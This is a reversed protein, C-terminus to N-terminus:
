ITVRRNAGIRRGLYQGILTGGCAAVLSVLVGGYLHSMIEVVSAEGMPEIVRYLIYVIAAWILLWIGLAFPVFGTRAIYGGLLASAGFFLANAATTGMYNDIKLLEMMYGTAWLIGIMAVTGLAKRKLSM